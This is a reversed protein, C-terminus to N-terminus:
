RRRRRVLATGALGLGMLALTAPEPVLGTMQDDRWNGTGDLQSEVYPQPVTALNPLSTQKVRVELANGVVADYDAANMSVGDLVVDVVTPTGGVMAMRTVVRHLPTGGPADYLTVGHWTEGLFSTPDGDVDVPELVVELAMWFWNTGGDAAADFHMAEIDLGTNFYDELNESAVDYLVVSYEGPNVTGDVMLAAWAPSAAMLMGAAAIGLLIQKRM